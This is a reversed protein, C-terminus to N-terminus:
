YACDGVQEASFEAVIRQPLFGAYRHQVELLVAEIEEVTKMQVLQNRFDKIHPFGKLYNTYHRRM